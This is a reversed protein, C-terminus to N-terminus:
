EATAFEARRNYQWASENHGPVAPRAEGYSVTRLKSSSVGLDVLYRKVSRARREGLALNYEESGREDTHGQVTVAGPLNSIQDSNSRLASQQDGRIDSRDFDFYVVQLDVNTKVPTAVEVVEVETFEEETEVVPPPPPPTSCAMAFSMTFVAVLATLSARVM